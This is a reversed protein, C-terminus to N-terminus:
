GHANGWVYEMYFEDGSYIRFGRETEVLEEPVPWAVWSHMNSGYNPEFYFGGDKISHVARVIPPAKPHWKSGGVLSIVVGPRIRARFESVTM